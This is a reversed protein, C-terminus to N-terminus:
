TVVRRKFKELGNREEDFGFDNMIKQANHSDEILSESLDIDIVIFDYQEINDTIARYADEFKVIRKIEHLSFIDAGFFTEESITPEDEIWLIRM